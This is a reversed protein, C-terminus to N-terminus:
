DKFCRTRAVLGLDQLRSSPAFKQLTTQFVNRRLAWFGVKVPMGSLDDQITSCGFSM